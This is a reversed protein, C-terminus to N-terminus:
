EQRWTEADERLRDLTSQLMAQKTATEEASADRAVYIPEAILAAARSFPAPIQLRDWTPLEVYRSLAIHFPLIAQGTHRALTIAGSKAIRAPGRPGDITFAVELGSNLCRAMEALARGGGRTSSGRATGYGFRKIVRGTYEGDRSASSMVVIGRNRWFFTASFICEHWFVFIPHHNSELIKNLHERGRVQWRLTSCIVRISSYFALDAIDIVLRDRPSYNSLDSFGYIRERM